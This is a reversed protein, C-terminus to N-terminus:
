RRRCKPGNWIICHRATHLIGSYPTTEGNAQDPLLIPGSEYKTTHLPRLRRCPSGIFRSVPRVGAPGEWPSVDPKGSRGRQAFDASLAALNVELYYSPSLGPGLFRAAFNDPQVCTPRRHAHAVYPRQALRIIRTLETATMCRLYLGIIATDVSSYLYNHM